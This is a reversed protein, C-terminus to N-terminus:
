NKKRSSKSFGDLSPVKRGQLIEEVEEEFHFIHHAIELIEDYGKLERCLDELERDGETEIAVVIQKRDDSVAFVEIEDYRKLTEKVADCNEPNVYVVSGSYIM